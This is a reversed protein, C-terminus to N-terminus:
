PNIGEYGGFCVDTEGFRAHQTLISAAFGKSGRGIAIHSAFPDTHEDQFPEIQCLLVPIMNIGDNSSCGFVVPSASTRKRGWIGPCLSVEQYNSVAFSANIGACYAVNFCM